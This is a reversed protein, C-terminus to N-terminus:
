AKVAYLIATAGPDSGGSIALTHVTNWSQSTFGGGGGGIGSRSVVVNSCGAIGAGAPVLWIVAASESLNNSCVSHFTEGNVGLGLGGSSAAAYVVLFLAAYQGMDTGSLDFSLTGDQVTTSLPGGLKVLCNAASIEELGQTLDERLGAAATDIKQWNENFETRLVQDTPQRLHLGLHESSNTAM